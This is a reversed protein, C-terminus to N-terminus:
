DLPGVDDLDVFDSEVDSRIVRLGYGALTAAADADDDLGTVDVQWGEADDFPPHAGARDFVTVARLTGSPDHQIGHWVSRWGARHLAEAWQQTCGRDGGAWLAATVGVGHCRPATVNAAPPASAPATVQAAARRRLAEDPLVGRSFEGFAELLAAAKTAGLYCAGNPHPLDFRGCSDVDDPDVAAFWWPQAFRRLFM